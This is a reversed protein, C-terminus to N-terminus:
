TESPDEFRLVKVAGTLDFVRQVPEEGPRLVFECRRESCRAHAQLLLRLGTSDIFALQRLDVIVRNPASHEVDHLRQELQPASGLDLEGELIIEVTGKCETASIGLRGPGLAHGTM